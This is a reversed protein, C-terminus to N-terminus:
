HYYYNPANNDECVSYQLYGYRCLFVRSSEFKRDRSQVWQICFEINQSQGLKQKGWIVSRAIKSAIKLSIIPRSVFGFTLSIWVSVYLTFFNLCVREYCCSWIFSSATEPIWKMTDRPLLLPFFSSRLEIPEVLEIADKAWCVGIWLVFETVEISFLSNEFSSWLPFAWVSPLVNIKVIM